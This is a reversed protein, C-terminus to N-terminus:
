FLSYQTESIVGGFFYVIDDKLQTAGVYSDSQGNPGFSVIAYRDFRDDNETLHGNSFTDSDYNDGLAGTGVIGVSSYMRYPRGWPDLPYDRRRDTPTMTEDWPSSYVDTDYYVRSPNLFPGQWYNILDKVRQDHTDGLQLQRGLQLEASIGADILYIRSDENTISDADSETTDPVDDLVQIPVYFGHTIACIEEAQAITKCEQHAIKIKAQESRNVYVPVAITALLGIIALVVLLETLTVGQNERSKKINM